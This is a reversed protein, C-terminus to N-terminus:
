PSRSRCRFSASRQCDLLFLRDATHHEQSFNAYFGVNRLAHYRGFDAAISTNGTLLLNCIAAAVPEGIGQAQEPLADDLNVGERVSLAALDYVHGDGPASGVEVIAPGVADVLRTGSARSTLM